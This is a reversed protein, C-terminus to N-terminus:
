RPSVSMSTIRVPDQLPAALRGRVFSPPPNSHCELCPIWVPERQGTLSDKVMFV